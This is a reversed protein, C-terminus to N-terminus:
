FGGHERRPRCMEEFVSEMSGAFSKADCLPSEKMRNRMEARLAKLENMDGALQIAKDVYCRIDGAVLKELGLHTLISAGVRSAHHGGALTVVPVGMWLAEFTTTTGNYPFPDLAIDMRNYCALHEKLTEVGSLMEIRDSIIGNQSFLDRYYGEIFEDPFQKSKLLLSSGPIGRLIRSWAEVVKRNVKTLNNFSGFTIHGAKLVPPSSLGPSDESPKYCLFGEKLRTLTETHYQETKGVPDAIADTIRYDMAPLGTTGPYGLWTVQVPAPRRAFVPMRNDVTHGALDVLIQIRDKQIQEAVRDDSCAAILRYHDAM